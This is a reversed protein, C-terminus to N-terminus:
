YCHLTALHTLSGPIKTKERILATVGRGSAAACRVWGQCVNTFLVPLSSSTLHFYLVFIVNSMSDNNLINHHLAFIVFSRKHSKLLKYYLIFISYEDLSTKTFQLVFIVVWGNTKKKYYGIKRTYHFLSLWGWVTYLKVYVTFNRQPVQTVVCCLFLVVWGNLKLAEVEENVPIMETM